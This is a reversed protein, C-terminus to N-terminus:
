DVDGDEERKFMNMVENIAEEAELEAHIEMYEDIDCDAELFDVYQESTIEIGDVVVHTAIGRYAMEEANMWHDKGNEMAILEEKTFYKNVFRKELRATVDNEHALAGMANAPTASMGTRGTHFMISGFETTVRKDGACFILAGMSLAMADIFVTTNHKFKEKIVNYLRIGENVSGGLSNIRLNLRAGPEARRMREIIADQQSDEHMFDGYYLTYQEVEIASLLSEDLGYKEQVDEPVLLEIEEQINEIYLSNYRTVLENSNISQATFDEEQEM